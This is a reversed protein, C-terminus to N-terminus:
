ERVGVPGAYRSYTDDASYVSVEVRGGSGGDICPAFPRSEGSYSVWLGPVNWYPVDDGNHRRVVAPHHCTAAFVSLGAATEAPVQDPAMNRNAGFDTIEWWLRNPVFDPAGKPLSLKGARFDRSAKFKNGYIQRMVRLYSDITSELTDLTWCLTLGVLPDDSDVLPVSLEADNIDVEGFLFGNETNWSTFQAIQEAAPMLVAPSLTVVPKDALFKGEIILQMASRIEVPDLSGNLVREELARQQAFFKQLTTDAAQKAM